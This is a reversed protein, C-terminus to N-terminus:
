RQDAPPPPGDHWHGHDPHWHKNTQPDYQWPQPNQISPTTNSPDAPPPGQHWHGHDPHWHRNAVPDYEWPQPTQVPQPTAGPPPAVAGQEPKSFPALPVAIAIIAGAVILILCCTLLFRSHVKARSM